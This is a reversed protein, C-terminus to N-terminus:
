SHGFQNLLQGFLVLSYGIVITLGWPLDSQFL